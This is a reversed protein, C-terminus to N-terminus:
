FADLPLATVIEATNADLFATWSANRTVLPLYVLSSPSSVGTALLVREIENRSAPYKNMLEAVPKAAKLVESRGLPYPQWLDPQASLPVGNLAALTAKYSEDASKFPRLALMTPGTVPMASIGQPRLRDYEFVTHVPRAVFMTWLGYALAVFQIVVVVALDRRLETVPKARNFIILTILPGLVVDVAVLIVFLERGGAIEAYPNPYWIWFVLLAALGAIVASLSLHVGSAVLRGQWNQPSTNKM